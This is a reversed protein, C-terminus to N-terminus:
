VHEEEKIEESSKKGVKVLAPRLVKDYLYYGQRVEELVEDEKESEVTEVCEMEVPNFKKSMVEIKKVGEGELIDKFQKVVLNLHEDKVFQELKVLQELSDLAPVLKLLLSSNALKVWAGREENTRKELNQYDALARKWNNTMEDLKNM